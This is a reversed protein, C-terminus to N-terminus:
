SLLFTSLKKESKESILLKEKPIKRNFPNINNMKGSSTKVLHRITM